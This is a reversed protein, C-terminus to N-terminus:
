LLPGCVPDARLRHGHDLAGAQHHSQYCLGDGHLFRGADSRRQAASVAANQSGSEVSYITGTQIWFLLFATGFFSVPIRWDIVGRVILYIGGLLLTLKCTEGLMGPINGSFLQWLTFSGANKALPTAMAVADAAGSALASCSARVASRGDPEILATWSLM